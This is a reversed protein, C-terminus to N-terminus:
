GFRKVEAAYKAIEGEDILGRQALAKMYYELTFMGDRQSTEIISPLQFTKDDRILVCVPPTAVMVEFAAIRGKGDPRPLLRQSVVALLTSALQMRIQNQQAAPFSDVIRDITQPANNTHLTAFVLHGTESATLAAAMTAPDRMEGVMIIDPAQRMAHKLAAPFSLTDAHLERQEIISKDNAFAFEIPDEITIIHALDSSCV